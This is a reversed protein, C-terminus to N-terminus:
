KGSVEVEVAAVVHAAEPSGSWEPLECRSARWGHHVLTGAYPPEGQVSGTVRYLGPDYGAPVELRTGEPQELVPQLGFMREIVAGADRLVDRAAAGIQEDSFEALPENVIDLFRSERQLAALLTLAESRSPRPPAAVKAPAPRQQPEPLASPEGARAELFGVAREVPVRGLLVAFFCRFALMLRQM